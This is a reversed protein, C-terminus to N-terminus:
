IGAKVKAEEARKALREATKAAKAAERALEEAKRVAASNQAKEAKAADRKAATLNKRKEAVVTKATNLAEEAEALEREAAEVGAGGNGSYSVTRAGRTRKSEAKWGDAALEEVVSVPISSGVGRGGLTAGKSVLIEKREATFWGISRNMYDAAEALTLTEGTTEEVTKAEAM